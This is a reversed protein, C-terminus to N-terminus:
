FVCNLSMIISFLVKRLNRIQVGPRLDCPDRDFFELGTSPPGQGGGLLPDTELSHCDDDGDESDTVQHMGCWYSKQM